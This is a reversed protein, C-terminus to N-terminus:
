SRPVRLGHDRLNGQPDVHRCLTVPGVGPERCLESVLSTRTTVLSSRRPRLVMSTAAVTAPNVAERETTDIEGTRRDLVLRWVMM